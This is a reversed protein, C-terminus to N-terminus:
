NKFVICVCPEDGDTANIVEMPEEEDFHQLAFANAVGVQFPNDGEEEKSDENLFAAPSRYVSIDVKQSWPLWGKYAIIHLQYAFIIDQETRLKQEAKKEHSYEGDAGIGVDDTIATEMKGGGNSKSGFTSRLKFGRAIKLGTIMFVPNKGVLGSDIATKVKKDKVREAAEEDTPQEKFYVTELRRITYKSLLADSSGGGLKANAKELFTAWISGRLSVSNQDSLENDYDFHSEIQGALNPGPFKSLPKIPDEPCQIINGICISTNPHYQFNPALIYTKVSAM